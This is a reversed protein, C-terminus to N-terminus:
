GQPSQLVMELFPCPTGKSELRPRVNEGAGGLFNENPQRGNGILWTRKLGHVCLNFWLASLVPSQSGEGRSQSEAEWSRSAGGEQSESGRGKVRSAGGGWNEEVGKEKAGQSKRGGWPRGGEKLPPHLPGARWSRSKWSDVCGTVEGLAEWGDCSM